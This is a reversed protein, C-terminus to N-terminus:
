CSSMCISNMSQSCTARGSCAYGPYDEIVPNPNVSFASDSFDMVEQDSSSDARLGPLLPLTRQAGFLSLVRYAQSATLESTIPEYDYGALGQEGFRLGAVFRARASQSFAALPSDSTLALLHNDLQKSSNIPAYKLVINKAELSKPQDAFATVSALGAVMLISVIFAKM